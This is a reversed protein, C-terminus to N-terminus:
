SDAASIPLMQNEGLMCRDRTEVSATNINISYTNSRKPYVRSTHRHKSSLRGDRRAASRYPKVNSPTHRDPATALPLVRSILHCEISIVSHGAICLAIREQNFSSFKSGDPVARRRSASIYDTLSKIAVLGCDASALPITAGERFPMSMGCHFNRHERLRSLRGFHLNCCDSKIQCFGNDLNMAYIFM